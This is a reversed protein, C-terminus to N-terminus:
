MLWRTTTLLYFMRVGDVKNADVLQIESEVYAQKLWKTPKDAYKYRDINENFHMLEKVAKRKKDRLAEAEEEPTMVRDEGDTDLAANRPRSSSFGRRFSSSPCTSLCTSFYSRSVLRLHLSMMGVMALQFKTSFGFKLAPRNLETEAILAEGRVWEDKECKVIM